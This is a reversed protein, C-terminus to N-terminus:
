FLLKIKHATLEIKIRKIWNEILDSEAKLGGIDITVKKIRVKLLVKLIRDEFDALDEVRMPGVPAAFLHGSAVVTVPSGKVAESIFLDESKEKSFHCFTEVASKIFSTLKLELLVDILLDLSQENQVLFATEIAIQELVPKLNINNSQSKSENMGAPLGALEAAGKIREKLSKKSDTM